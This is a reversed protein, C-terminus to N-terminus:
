QTRIKKLRYGGLLRDSNEYARCTSCLGELKYTPNYPLGVGCKPCRRKAKAEMDVMDETINHSSFPKSETINTNSNL